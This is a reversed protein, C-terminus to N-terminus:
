IKELLVGWLSKKLIGTNKTRESSDYYAKDENEIIPGYEQEIARM